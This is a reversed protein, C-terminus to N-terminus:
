YIQHHLINFFNFTVTKHTIIVKIKVLINELSMGIARDFALTESVMGYADNHHSAHDIKGGEIVLVYGKSNNSLKDIGFKM